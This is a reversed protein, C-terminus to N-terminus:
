AALPDRVFELFKSGMPTTQSNQLGSGSMMASPLSNALLGKASLDSWIMLYLDRQGRLSPIMEELVNALSGIMVNGSSAPSQMAKLIQIHLFSMTDIWEFFISERVEDIDMHLATNAIANQLTELKESQHTRLAVSSAHMVATIFREDSSLKELDVGARSELELLKEGVAQMWENRRRSIPPEILQQFVEVAAGGVMPLASLGARVVAHVADARGEKPVELDDSM